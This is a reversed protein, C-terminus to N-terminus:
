DAPKKVMYFDKILQHFNYGVIRTFTNDTRNHCM